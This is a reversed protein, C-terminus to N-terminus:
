VNFKSQIQIKKSSIAITPHVIALSIGILYWLLELWLWSLSFASFCVSILVLAPILWIPKELKYRDNKFFSPISKLCQGILLIFFFFGVFGLRLLAELYANHMVHKAGTAEYSVNLIAGRTNGFGLFPREMFANLGAKWIDTRGATMGSLNQSHQGSFREKISFADIFGLQILLMIMLIGLVGYKIFKHFSFKSFILIAIGMVFVFSAMSGRSLTLTVAYAVLGLATIGLIKLLNKKAYFMLFLSFISMAVLMAGFENPDAGEFSKRTVVNWWDTEQYGWGIFYVTTVILSLSIGVTAVSINNKIFTSGKKLLFLYLIFGFLLRPLIKTMYDTFSNKSVMNNPDMIAYLTALFTLFIFFPFLLAIKRPLVSKNTFLYFLFYGGLSIALIKTLTVGESVVLITDVVPSFLLITFLFRSDWIILVFFLFLTLIPTRTALGLTLGLILLIYKKWDGKKLFSTSASKKHETQILSM